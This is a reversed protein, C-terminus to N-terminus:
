LSDEAPHLTQELELRTREAQLTRQLEEETPLYLQYKSAFIQQSEKLLTYQVMAENKDSCLILGITPADDARREEAEYYRVYFDMQGIDQHTLRGVKFDLLVFCKLIFNYLVLDIYYHDGGVTLRKQRAVLAFGKGLELLFKQLRDILAQELDKERLASSEPLGLFELIYPDKILDEANRIVQGEDALARVKKKDRSLALREYLLSDMQRDLERTSWGSNCTENLYFSRAQENEVRLLLRYHTWSLEDRLAHRIPFALYFQRMYKLNTETFGKGFDQTLRKALEILLAEGYDARKRGKQQEEVIIRGIQWYAQVMVANVARYTAARANQLIDAISHYADDVEVDMTSVITGGSKKQSVKNKTKTKSKSIQKKTTTKKKM